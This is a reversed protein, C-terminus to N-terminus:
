GRIANSRTPQCGRPQRRAFQEQWLPFAELPFCLLSPKPCSMASPMDDRFWTYIPRPHAKALYLRTPLMVDPQVDLYRALAASFCLLLGSFSVFNCPHQETALVTLVFIHLAALDMHLHPKQLRPHRSHMAPLCHQEGCHLMAAHAASNWLTHM